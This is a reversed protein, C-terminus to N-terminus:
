ARASFVTVPSKAILGLVEILEASDVRLERTESCSPDFATSVCYDFSITARQARASPNRRPAAGPSRDRQAAGEVYNLWHARVPAPCSLRPGIM